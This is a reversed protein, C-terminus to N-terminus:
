ENVFLNYASCTIKDSLKPFISKTPDTKRGGKKIDRSFKEIQHTNM